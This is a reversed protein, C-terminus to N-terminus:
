ASSKKSDDSKGKAMEMLASELPSLTKASSMAEENIKKLSAPTLGIERWYTLAMNDLDNIIRLLPNQEINEAGAKNTHKILTHGGSKDFDARAVDRRELIDALTDFIPEFEKSYTGVKKSNKRIISLWKTKEM